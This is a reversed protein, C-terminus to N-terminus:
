KRFTAKLALYARHARLKVAGPTTGVRAAAEQISLGQFKLLQLAERQRNPLARMATALEAGFDRPPQDPIPEPDNDTLLEHRTRRQWRRGYDAVVNRAIAFLWPEIPRTPQYTHRARHLALFTDQYADALDQNDRVRRRLFRVLVPGLDDLLARYAGADGHQVLAMWSARRRTRDERTEPPSCPSVETAARREIHLGTTVPM